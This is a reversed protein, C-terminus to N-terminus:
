REHAIGSSVSFSTYKGVKLLLLLVVLIAAMANGGDVVCGRNHASSSVNLGLHVVVHDRVRSDYLRGKTVRVCSHDLKHVIRVLSVMRVSSVM